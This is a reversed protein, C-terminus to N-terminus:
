NSRITFKSLVKRFVHELGESDCSKNSSSLGGLPAVAVGSLLEVDTGGCLLETDVLGLHEGLSAVTAVFGLDILWLLLESDVLWAELSGDRLVAAWGEVDVGGVLLEAHVLWVELGTGLAVTGRLSLNVLGALLETDVLWGELSSVGAHSSVDVVILWTRLNSVGSLSRDGVDGGAACSVINQSVGSKEVDVGAGGENDTVASIVAVHAEETVASDAVSLRLSENSAGLLNGVADSVVVTLGIDGDDPSLRLDVATTVRLTVVLLLGAVLGWDLLLDAETSVVTAVTAVVTTVITAETAANTAVITAVTALAVTTVTALAVTAVTALAITALAVTAVAVTGTLDVSIMISVPSVVASLVAAERAEATVTIRIVLTLVTSAVILGGILAAEALLHAVLIIVGITIVVIVTTLSSGVVDSGAVTINSIVALLTLAVVLDGVAGITNVFDSLGAGVGVVTSVAM